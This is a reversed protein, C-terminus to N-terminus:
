RELVQVLTVADILWEGDINTLHLAIEGVDTMTDRGSTTTLHLTALIEAQRNDGLTILTDYFTLTIEQYRNRAMFVSDIIDKRTYTGQQGYEELSLSCQEAFLSGIEAARSLAELGQEQGQKAILQSLADLRRQVQRADSTLFLWVVVAVCVVGGAALVYNKKM